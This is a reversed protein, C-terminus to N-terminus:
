RPTMYVHFYWLCHGCSRVVVDVVVVHSNNNNNPLDMTARSCLSLRLQDVGAAHEIASVRVELMNRVLWMRQLIDRCQGCTRVCVNVFNANNLSIIAIQRWGYETVLDGLLAISANDSSITRLFTPFRQKDSLTISTATYSIQVCVCM